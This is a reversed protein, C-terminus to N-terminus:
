TLRNKFVFAFTFPQMFPFFIHFSPKFYQLWTTDSRTNEHSRCHSHFRISFCKNWFPERYTRRQRVSSSVIKYQQFNQSWKADSRTNEHSRLPFSFTDLLIQERFPERYMRRRRVSSSVIRTNNSTKHRHPTVERTKMPVGCSFFDIWGNWPYKYSIPGIKLNTSHPVTWM